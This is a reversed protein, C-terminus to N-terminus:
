KAGLPVTCLFRLPDKGINKFNHRENAPVFVVVGPRLLEEGKEGVVTGEGSLVYVEHEWDHAHYPTYGGAELEFERMAFNPAGTKESILWRIRVGNAGEAEVKNQAVENVDKVFVCGGLM